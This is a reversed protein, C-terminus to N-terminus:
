KKAQTRLLAATAAQRVQPNNASRAINTLMRKARRNVAAQQQLQQVAQLQLPISTGRLATRYWRHLLTSGVPKPSAAVTPASSGNSIWIESLQSEADEESSYFLLFNREGLLLRLARAFPVDSFDASVIGGAGEQLWVIEAGSLEGIEDMVTRLSVSNLKATVRGEQLRLIGPFHNHAVGRAEADELSANFMALMFFCVVGVFICIKRASGVSLPLKRTSM